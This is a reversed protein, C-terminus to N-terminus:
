AHASKQSIHLTNSLWGACSFALTRVGGTDAEVARDRAGVVEILAADLQNRHTFAVKLLDTLREIGLDEVAARRFAAVAQEIGSEVAAVLKGEGTTRM